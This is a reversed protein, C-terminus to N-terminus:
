HSSTETHVNLESHNETMVFLLPLWCLVGPSRRPRVLKTEGSAWPRGGLLPVRGEHGTHDGLTLM